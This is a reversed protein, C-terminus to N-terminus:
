IMRQAIGVFLRLAAKSQVSRRQILVTLGQSHQQLVPSRQGASSANRGSPSRFERIQFRSYLIYSAPGSVLGEIQSWEISVAGAASGFCVRRCRVTAAWKPVHRSMPELYPLLFLRLPKGFSNQQMKIVEGPKRRTFKVAPMQFCRREGNQLLMTSKRRSEFGNKLHVKTKEAPYHYLQNILFARSVLGRVVTYPSFRMRLLHIMRM